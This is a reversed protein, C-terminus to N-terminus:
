YRVLNLRYMWEFFVQRLLYGSIARRIEYNGPPDGIYTTRIRRMEDAGLDKIMGISKQQDQVRFCALFRPLRKFRFGATQARLAFDWDLAFDFSEDMPGVAEWVQRRWFLTEQPIYDAWKLTEAHHPPLICRGIEFGHTDLFVRHGYVLDVKPNERFARAIYALTGPLLMDDSNLYGMIDGSVEGFARNIANAQGTDPKSRWQLATGYSKLIQITEDASGGDQVMYSLKPYNQQLVSDITARIYKGQNFSPTVMAIQPPEEPVSELRYTPRIRLRRSSYQEGTWLRPRLKRRWFQYIGANAVTAIFDTKREILALRREIRRLREAQHDDSLDHFKMKRDLNQPANSNRM